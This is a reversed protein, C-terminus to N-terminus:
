LAFVPLIQLLGAAARRIIGKKPSFLHQPHQLAVERSRHDCSSSAAIPLGRKGEENRATEIPRLKAPRPLTFGLLVEKCTGLSQRM